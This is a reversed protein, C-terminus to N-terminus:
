VLVDTRLQGPMRKLKLVCAAEAKIGLLRSAASHLNADEAAASATRRDSRENDHQKAHPMAHLMAHLM